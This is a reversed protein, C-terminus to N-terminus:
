TQHTRTNNCINNRIRTKFKRYVQHTRTNNRINNRIRTKFKSPSLFFLPEKRCRRFSFPRGRFFVFCVCMIWCECLFLLHQGGNGLACLNVVVTTVFIRSFSNRNCRCSSWYVILIQVVEDFFAVDREFVTTVGSRERFFFPFWWGGSGGSCFFAHYILVMNLPICYYQVKKQGFHIPSVPSSLFKGAM